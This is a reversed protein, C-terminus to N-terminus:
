LNPLDIIACAVNPKFVLTSYAINRQSLCMPMKSAVFNGGCSFCCRGAADWFGIKLFTRAIETLRVARTNTSPPADIPMETM